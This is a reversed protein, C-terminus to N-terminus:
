PGPHLQVPRVVRGVLATELDVSSADGMTQPCELAHSRGAGRQDVLLVDRQRLTEAFAAAVMPWAELAAQGPGGAIFLVPDPRPHKSTSPVWAVAIDLRRATPNSRDEPVRLTACRAAVTQPQGPTSLTCPTFGLHGFPVKGTATASHAAVAGFALSLVLVARVRQTHSLVSQRM